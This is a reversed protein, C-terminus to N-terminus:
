GPIFLGPPILASIRQYAQAFVQWDQDRVGTFAPEVLSSPLTVGNDQLTTVILTYAGRLLKRDDLKKGLVYHALLCDYGEKATNLTPIGQPAVDTPANIARCRAPQASLAQDGAGPWLVTVLVTLALIRKVAHFRPRIRDAM